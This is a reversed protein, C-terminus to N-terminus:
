ERTIAKATNIVLLSLDVVSFVSEQNQPSRTHTNSAVSYAEQIKGKPTQAVCQIQNEHKTQNPGKRVKSILETNERKLFLFFFFNAEVVEQTKLVSM